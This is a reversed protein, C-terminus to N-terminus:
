ALRVKLNIRKSGNTPKRVIILRLGKVACSEVFEDMTKGKKVKKTVKVDGLDDTTAYTVPKVKKRKAVDAAPVLRVGVAYVIYRDKNPMVWEYTIPDVVGGKNKINKKVWTKTEGFGKLRIVNKDNYVKMKPM